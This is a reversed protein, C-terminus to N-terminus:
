AVEILQKIDAGVYQEPLEGIAYGKGTTECYYYRRSGMVFYKGGVGENGTVGVAMHDDIVILATGYNFYEGNATISALLASTDECDGGKDVITEIPYKPYNDGKTVEDSTYPMEQVFALLFSVEEYSKYSATRAYFKLIQALASVTRDDPKVYKLYENYSHISRELPLADLDKKPSGFDCTWLTGEYSWSFTTRVQAEGVIVTTALCNNGEITEKIQNSPDVLLKVVSMGTPLALKDPFSLSFSRGAKLTPVTLEGVQSEDVMLRVTTEASTKRGANRVTVSITVTEGARPNDPQRTINCLYLDPFRGTPANSNNGPNLIDRLDDIDDMICGCISLALANALVSALLTNRLLHGRTRPPNPSTASHRRM